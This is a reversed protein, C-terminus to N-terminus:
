LLHNIQIAYIAYHKGCLFLKHNNDKTNGVLIFEAMNYCRVRFPIEFSCCARFNSQPTIRTHTSEEWFEDITM